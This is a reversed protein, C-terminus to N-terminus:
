LPSVFKDSKYAADFRTEMSIEVVGADSLNRAAATLLRSIMASDPTIEQLSIGVLKKLRKM